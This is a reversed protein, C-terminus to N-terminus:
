YVDGTRGDPLLLDTLTQRYLHLLREVLLVWFARGSHRAKKNRQVADMCLQFCPGVVVIFIYEGV